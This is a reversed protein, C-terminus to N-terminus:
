VHDVEWRLAALEMVSVVERESTFPHDNFAAFPCPRNPEVVEGGTREPFKDVAAADLYAIMKRSTDHKRRYEVNYILGMEGMAELLHGIGCRNGNGDALDGQHWHGWVMRAAEHIKNM